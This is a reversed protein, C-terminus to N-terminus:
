QLGRYSSRLKAGCSVVVSLMGAWCNGQIKYEKTELQEEALRDDNSCQLM